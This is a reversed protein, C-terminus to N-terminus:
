KYGNNNITVRNYKYAHRNIQVCKQQSCIPSTGEPSCLWQSPLYNTIYLRHGLQRSCTLNQLHSQFNSPVLNLFSEKVKTSHKLSAVGYGADSISLTFSVWLAPSRSVVIGLSPSIRQINISSIVSSCLPM